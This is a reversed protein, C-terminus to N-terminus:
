RIITTITYVKQIPPNHTKHQLHREEKYPNKPYDRDM